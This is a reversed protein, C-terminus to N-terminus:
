LNATRVQLSSLLTTKPLTHDDFSASNFKERFATADLQAYRFALAAMTVRTSCAIPLPAPLYKSPNPYSDLPYANNKLAVARAQQSSHNQPM